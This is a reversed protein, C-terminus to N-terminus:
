TKYPNIFVEYKGDLIGCFTEYLADKYAHNLKVEIRDENYFKSAEDASISIQYEPNIFSDQYHKRIMAKFECIMIDHTCSKNVHLDLSKISYRDENEIIEFETGAFLIKALCKM